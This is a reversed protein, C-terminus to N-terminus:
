FPKDPDDQPTPPGPDNAPAPPRVVDSLLSDIILLVTSKLNENHQGGYHMSDLMTRITSILNAAMMSMLPTERRNLRSALDDYAQAKSELLRLYTRSHLELGHQMLGALEGPGFGSGRGQMNTMLQAITGAQVNNARELDKIQADAMALSDRLDDNTTSLDEYVPKVDLIKARDTWQFGDHKNWYAVAIESHDEDGPMDPRIVIAPCWDSGADAGLLYRVYFEVRQGFRFKM